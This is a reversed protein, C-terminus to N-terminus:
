NKVPLIKNLLALRVTHRGGLFHHALYTKLIKKILVWGLLATPLCIINANNHEAACVASYEDYLIACVNGPIKSALMFSAVGYDDIIIARAVQQVRVLSAAKLTIDVITSPQQQNLDWVQYQESLLATILKQQELFCSTGVAIVPKEM